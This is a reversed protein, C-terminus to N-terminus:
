IWRRTRRCYREFDVGFRLLLHMEEKRIAISTTVLATLPAALLMWENGFILAGGIMLLTYSLYIPNRTYRYPGETVLRRACRDLRIPTDLGIMTNVAWLDLAVALTAILCGAIVPFLGQLQLLTGPAIYQEMVVSAMCAGGYVLPLWPYKLSPRRYANM